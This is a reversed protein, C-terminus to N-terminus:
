RKLRTTEDAIQELTSIVRAAAQYARQAEIMKTFQDALDVTSLELSGSEITSGLSEAKGINPVGSEGTSIFNSGGVRKLGSPNAFEALAIQALKAEEGNTFYGIIAGDSRIKFDNLTGSEKGDQHKTHLTSVANFQTIGATIGEQEDAHLRIVLDEAGNSLSLTLADVGGDYIFSILSGNSDFLVKGSGGKVITEGSSAVIEWNWEGTNETKTFNITLNHSEGLSDYVVMSTSVRATYGSETNVFSPVSMLGTNGDSASLSITTSSDGVEDDELVVKGNELKATSYGSYINNITDVLDGLTAGDTYTFAGSVSEGGRNKGVINFSDGTVLSTTVQLLDNLETSEDALDGSTSSVGDVFGLDSLVDNTGSSLTLTTGSYGDIARFKLSGGANVAEVKGKLDSANIQNNIETVLSDIDNYTGATLTLEETITEGFQPNFTVKFQDNVGATVNLPFTIGSSVLTAKKTFASGTAWVERTSELGANLNGALWVNETAKAPMILDPDIIIDTITSTAEAESGGRIDEMWGQVVYGDVNVLKGSSDVSFAGARTYFKEEGKKVIFFSDGKIALDTVNGTYTVAGQKFMLQSVGAVTGLTEVFTIRRTKYGPTNLNAINEGLLELTKKQENLAATPIYFSFMAGEKGKKDVETM